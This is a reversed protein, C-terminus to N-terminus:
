LTYFIALDSIVKGDASVARAKQTIRIMFDCVPGDVRTCTKVQSSGCECM